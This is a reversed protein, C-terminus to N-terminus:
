CLALYVRYLVFVIALCRVHQVVQKRCQQPCTPLTNLVLNVARLVFDWTKAKYVIAKVESWKSLFLKSKSSGFHVEKFQGHVAVLKKLMAVKKVVGAKLFIGRINKKVGAKLMKEQERLPPLDNLHDTAVQQLRSLFGRVAVADFIEQSAKTLGAGVDSPLIGAQKRTEGICQDAKSLHELINHLSEPDSLAASEHLCKGFELKADSLGAKHSIESAREPLVVLALTHAQTQWGKDRDHDVLTKLEPTVTPWDTQAIVALRAWSMSVLSAEFSQVVDSVADKALDLWCRVYPIFMSVPKALWKTFVAKQEQAEPMAALLKAYKDAVEAFSIRCGEESPIKQRLVAKFEDMNNPSQFASSDVVGVKDLFSNLSKYAEYMTDFFVKFESDSMLLMSKGSKAKDMEWLKRLGQAFPMVINWKSNIDGIAKECCKLALSRPRDANAKGSESLATAIERNYQSVLLSHAQDMAVLYQEQHPSSVHQVDLKEM